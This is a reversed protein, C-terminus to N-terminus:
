EGECAECLGRVLLVAVSGAAELGLCRSVGGNVLVKGSAPFEEDAFWLNLLLPYNPAFRFVARLDVRNDRGYEAGMADCAARIREPSHRGLRNAILEDIERDFSAGRSVGDGPVDCLALWDETPRSDDVGALYQLLSLHRWMDLAPEIRFTEGDIRLSQGFSELAIARGDFTMGARDAIDQLDRGRLREAAAALMAEYQRNEIM